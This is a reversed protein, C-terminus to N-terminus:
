PNMVKIGFPTTRYLSEPSAGQIEILHVGHMAFLPNKLAEITVGFHVALEGLTGVGEDNMWKLIEYLTFDHVKNTELWERAVKIDERSQAGTQYARVIDGIAALYGELHPDELQIRAIGARFKSLVDIRDRHLESGVARAARRLEEIDCKDYLRKLTKDVRM